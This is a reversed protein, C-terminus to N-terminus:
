RHNWVWRRHRHKEVRAHKRAYREREEELKALQRQRKREAEFAAQWSREARKFRGNSLQRGLKDLLEDRENELRKAKVYHANKAFHRRADPYDVHRYHYGRGFDFYVGRADIRVGRLHDDDARADQPALLFLGACLALALAFTGAKHTNTTTQM